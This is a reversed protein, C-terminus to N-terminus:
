TDLATCDQFQLEIAIIMPLNLISHLRLILLFDNGFSVTASFRRLCTCVFIYMTSRRIHLSGSAERLFKQAMSVSCISSESLTCSLIQLLEHLFMAFHFLIVCKQLTKLFDRFRKCCALHSAATVPFHLALHASCKQLSNMFFRERNTHLDPFLM